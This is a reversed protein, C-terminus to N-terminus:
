PHGRRRRLDRWLSICFVLLVTGGAGVLRPDPAFPADPAPVVEASLAGAAFQPISPAEVSLWPAFGPRDLDSLDVIWIESAVQVDSTRAGTSPHVVALRTPSRWGVVQSTSIPRVRRMQARGDVVDGVLLPLGVGYTQERRGQAIGAVQLAAPGLVPTSVLGDTDLVLRSAHGAGDVRWGRRAASGGVALFGASDQTVTTLDLRGAPPDPVAEPEGGPNWTLLHPQASNQDADRFVGAEFWLSTGAWALGIAMLGHDNAPAWRQEEGTVLDLLRLETPVPPQDDTRVATSGLSAWYALQTGDASLAAQDAQGQAVPLDLWRSEGSAATVGWLATHSSLWGSRPGVGIASLPGPVRGFAPAWGGPQRVVDPLVWASGPRDAVPPAVLRALPTAALAGVGALVVACAVAVAWRRGQRRRGRSWIRDPDVGGAPAHAALRELRDAVDGAPASM